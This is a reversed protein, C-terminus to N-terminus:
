QETNKKNTTLNPNEMIKTSNFEAPHPSISQLIKDPLPSTNDFIFDTNLMIKAEQTSISVDFQSGPSFSFEDKDNPPPTNIKDVITTDKTEEDKKPSESTEVQQQNQQNTNKKNLNQTKQQQALKIIMQEQQQVAPSQSLILDDLEKETLSSINSNEQNIISQQPQQVNSGQKEQNKKIEQNEQNQKDKENITIKKSGAKFDAEKYKQLKLKTINIITFDNLAKLKAEPEWETNVGIFTFNSYNAGSDCKIFKKKLETSMTDLYEKQDVIFKSTINITTSNKIKTQNFTTSAERIVQINDTHIATWGSKCNVVITNSNKFLSKIKEFNSKIYITYEKEKPKINKLTNNLWESILNEGLM